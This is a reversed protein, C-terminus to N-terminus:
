KITSKKNQVDVYESLHRKKSAQNFQRTNRPKQFAVVSYKNRTQRRSRPENFTTIIPPDDDNNATHHQPPQLNQDENSDIVAPSLQENPQNAPPSPSQDDNNSGDTHDTLDVHNESPNMLNESSSASQEDNNSGDNQDTLDVMNETPNTPNESSSASQDDNNSSDNPDTLDVLNEPFHKKTIHKSMHALQWKWGANKVNSKKKAKYYSPYDKYSILCEKDCNPIPCEVVCTITGDPNQKYSNRLVKFDLEEDRIQFPSHERLRISRSKKDYCFANLTGSKFCNSKPDM